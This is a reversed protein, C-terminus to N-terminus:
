KIFNEESKMWKRRLIDMDIHLIPENEHDLVYKTFVIECLIIEVNFDNTNKNWWGHLFYKQLTTLYSIHVHNKKTCIDIFKMAWM